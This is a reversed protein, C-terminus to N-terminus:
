LSSVEFNLTFCDSTSLSAESTLRLQHSALLSRRILFHHYEAQSLFAIRFHHGSGFEKHQDILELVFLDECGRESLTHLNPLGEANIERM